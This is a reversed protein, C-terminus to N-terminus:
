GRQKRLRRRAVEEWVVHDPGEGEWVRIEIVVLSFSRIVTGSIAAVGTAAVGPAVDPAPAAVPDLDPHPTPALLIAPAGLAFPAGRGGEPAKGQAVKQHAEGLHRALDELPGLPSLGLVVGAKAATPRTVTLPPIPAPEVTALEPPGQTWLLPVLPPLARASLLGRERFLAAQLDALRGEINGPLRLASLMM